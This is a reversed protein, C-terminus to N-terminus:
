DLCIATDITAGVTKKEPPPPDGSLDQVEVRKRKKGQKFDGNMEARIQELTIPEYKGNPFLRVKDIDQGTQTLIKDMDTDIGLDQFRCPNSCVPCQWNGTQCCFEMFGKLDFCQPHNCKSGRVPTSIRKITLPCRLSVRSEGVQIDDDCTSVGVKPLPPRPRYPKCLRQHRPWHEQQHRTGCYWATKCRSCRLLDTKKDCLECKKDEANVGLCKKKITHVMAETSHFTAVEAVCIGSWQTQCHLEVDMQRQAKDSIDLPKAVSFGKKKKTSKAQQIPIFDKNIYVNIGKSAVVNWAEHNGETSFLRLHLGITRQRRPKRLSQMQEATLKITFTSSQSPLVGVATLNQWDIIYPCRQMKFKPHEILKPVDIQHSQYSSFRANKLFTFCKSLQDILYKKSGTLKIQNWTSGLDRFYRIAQKIQQVSWDNLKSGDSSDLDKWLSSPDKNLKKALDSIIQEQQNQRSSRQRHMHL